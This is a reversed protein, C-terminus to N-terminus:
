ISFSDHTEFGMRLAAGEGTYVSASPKKGSEWVCLIENYQDVFIQAAKGFDLNLGAFEFM